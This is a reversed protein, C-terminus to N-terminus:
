ATLGLATLAAIVDSLTSPHAPQAVPSKGFFGLSASSIALDTTAAISIDQTATMAINDTTEIFCAASQITVDHNFSILHVNSDASQIWVGKGTPLSAGNDLLLLSYGANPGSPINTNTTVELWGGENDTDFQIGSGGGGSSTAASGFPPLYTVTATDGATVTAAPFVRALLGGTQSYISLCPVFNGAASTGDYIATSTYPQVVLSGPLQYTYPAPGDPNASWEWPLM